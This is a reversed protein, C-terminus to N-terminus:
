HKRSCMSQSQLHREKSPPAECDSHLVGLNALAADESTELSSAAAQLALHAHQRICSHADHQMDAMIKLGFMMISIGEKIPTKGSSFLVWETRRYPTISTTHHSGVLMEALGHQHQLCLMAVCAELAPLAPSSRRRDLRLFDLLPLDPLTPHDGMFVLAGLLGGGRTKGSM